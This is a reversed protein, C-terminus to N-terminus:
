VDEYVRTKERLSFLAARNTFQIETKEKIARNNITEGYANHQRM